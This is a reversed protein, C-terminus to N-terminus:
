TGNSNIKCGFNEKLQIAEPVKGGKLSLSPVFDGPHGSIGLAHIIRWRYQYVLNYSCHMQKETGRPGGLALWRTVVRVCRESGTRESLCECLWHEMYKMLQTDNMNGECKVSCVASSNTGSLRQDTVCSYANILPYGVMLNDYEQLWINGFWRGVTQDSFLIRSQTIILPLTPYQRRIYCLLRIYNRAPIDMVIVDVEKLLQILSVVDNVITICIDNSCESYGCLHKLAIAKPWESSYILIHHM